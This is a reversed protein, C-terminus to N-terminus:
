REVATSSRVNRALAERYIREGLERFFRLGCRCTYREAVAVAPQVTRCSPCAVSTTDTAISM